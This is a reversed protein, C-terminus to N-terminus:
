EGALLDVIGVVPERYPELECVRAFEVQTAGKVAAEMAEELTDFYPELRIHSSEGHVMAVFRTPRVEVAAVTEGVRTEYRTATWAVAHDAQIRHSATILDSVVVRTRDYDHQDALRQMESPKLM